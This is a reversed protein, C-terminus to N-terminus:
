TSMGLRMHGVVAFFVLCILFTERSLILIMTCESVSPPTTHLDVCFLELDSLLNIYLYM